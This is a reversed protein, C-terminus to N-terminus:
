TPLVGSPNKTYSERYSDMHLKSSTCGVCQWSGLESVVSKIEQLKREQINETSDIREDSLQCLM